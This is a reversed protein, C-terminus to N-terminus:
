LLNVICCSLNVVIKKQISDSYKELYKELYNESIIDFIIEKM